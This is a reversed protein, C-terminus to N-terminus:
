FHLPLRVAVRRLIRCVLELRADADRVGLVVREVQCVRVRPARGPRRVVHDRLQRHLEARVGGYAVDGAGVALGAVGDRRQPAVPAPGYDTTVEVRTHRAPQTPVPRVRGVVGAAAGVQEEDAPCHRPPALRSSPPLDRVVPEEELEPESSARVAEAREVEAAVTRQQEEDHM